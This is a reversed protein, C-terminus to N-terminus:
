TRRLTYLPPHTAVSRAGLTGILGIGVAGGILGALWIVLNPKYTLHFIQEALVFGIASASFAALLGALLGLTVFEAAVGLLLQRRSAGLTRLIAGDHLREDQTSQIAAWLVVLGAALTFLFVFEVALTVRDMIGRVKTMLASIDIVTLNPFKRILDTLLRTNGKPLHFSTVYNSPFDDLVGPPVVMFFNVNFSDWDVSRLSTVTFSVPEGAIRYHLTDGLKIGLRRAIGEELSMLTKGHEDRTWWRGSLIRNDTQPETAFSLNQERVALRRTQPDAFSGPELAKDNIGILRARTMPYFTPVTVQKDQFFRDLENVQARQVNILFYNPANQPLSAQWQNILDNRVIALLLMVTIGLGFALLQVISGRARRSINAIGFRWSVGVRGRLKGVSKTLLWAMLGLILMTGVSGGTVYATLKPDQTQWLMLLVISALAALYVSASTAPLNGLDRRLVRAPPVNKLHLVPPLGFGLLIILGTALASVVPLATPGPLQDAVLGVLIAALGWQAVYGILIGALSGLLALLGLQGSYLAVITRQNAGFCRLVASTDLHRMAYRRGAIAIAVGALVVSALAALGLFQEARELAVRMEPRADRVGQLRATRKLRPKLWSRYNRIANDDGSLLLRYSIRSGPQILRTAPLDGANMMLRPAISFMDGGRDPEYSIVRSVRVTTAGVSVTSGIDIALQGFLRADLWAEGSAPVTRTTTDATYPASAVRLQGRLPYNATVAKIEALQTRNGALVVSPFQTTQATRLNAKRARSIWDHPIPQTSIVLLDAALLESAQHEMAGRVRDAFFGVASVSAVAVILAVTATTLEGARWERRLFRLSLRLIHMM